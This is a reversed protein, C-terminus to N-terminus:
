QVSASLKVKSLVATVASTAPYLQKTDILIAQTGPLKKEETVDTSRAYSM